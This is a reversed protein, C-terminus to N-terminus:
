RNEKHLLTLLARTSSAEEARDSGDSQISLQRSLIPIAAAQAVYLRGVPILVTWGDEGRRLEWRQKLVKVKRWVGDPELEIASRAQIEAWGSDGKTQVKKVELDRVLLLPADRDASLATAATRSLESVAKEVDTKSPKSDYNAVHASEPIEYGPAANTGEDTTSPSVDTALDNIEGPDRVRAHSSARLTSEIESTVIYRYFRPAGRRRWYGNSYEDVRLGSRTSSYFTREAADVVLGVHGPWVIVDGPQAKRVRRFQPIGAFIEFSTAYPFELGATTLVQHLLHSCDPKRGTVRHDLAHRVLSAGESRTLLRTEAEAQASAAVCATACLVTVCRAARFSLSMRM